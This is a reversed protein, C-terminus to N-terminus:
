ASEQEMLEWLSSPTIPLRDVALGLADGVAGALAANPGLTGGEGVGRVGLPNAAPNAVHGIALEPIEASTPMLYDLLSGTTLNGDDDYILHEYLAGGIGQAISGAIQGNVIRPHIIRGADEVCAWDLIRLEATDTDIEIRIVQAGAAFAGRIPDHFRTEELGPEIGEPLRNSELYAVRGVEALSISPRADGNVYIQGAALTLEDAKADLLGAALRLARDRVAEGARQAAGGGIVSQRSSFAGFGWLSEDTDGIRVDVDDYGVGIADAVVQAITTELGQGQSTVGSFVTVTGDPNIRATCADHGTRFPMRPGASAARGLGTLENYVAFGVGLRPLGAEIRRQQEARHGSEAYNALEIAKDLCAGYHGSDDVLRSPMKYPIDQPRILNRRRIQAGSIGLERAASDLVSEMAFVSAPRAVGRYPGAPATNTTVGRVTCEYNALRYPGTLLGGAMLPEIGATWPYVSYAGVNCTIDAALALLDGEATFAAKLRYRHDRAHTAALLHESRDEVWKVPTGPLAIAMLCLAVDEPYLVSKVGFGGGVDPAIVRVGGERLGLLEALMNRIIHPVQTGSWFTLQGTERRWLAVGARCEMPNGAHRNTILDREVVLGAAPWTAECDGASFTRTLLVNDPAEDHVPAQQPGPDWASVTVPLPEYDVDILALADEALYRNDAVVAAIPEGAFRTKTTALVPQATEVYAPLASQARLAVAAFDQGTFVARVGDAARAAATDIAGIRAHAHPSRLFAVQRTRPLQLDSVYSGHGTVLRRDEKRAVPEGVATM